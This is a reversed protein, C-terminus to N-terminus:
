RALMKLKAGAVVSVMSGSKKESGVMKQALSVSVAMAVPSPTAFM